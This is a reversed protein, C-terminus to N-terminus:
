SRLEESRVAGECGDRSGIGFSGWGSTAFPTSKARRARARFSRSCISNSVHQRRHCPAPVVELGQALFCRVARPMHTAETVLVVKSVGRESLARGCQRANEYTTTSRDEVIIDDAAVGTNVLVERMLRAVPPAEDDPDVVGGCVVIPCSTGDRYLELAFMTRFMTDPSLLARPHSDDRGLVGGGLVVIANADRPRSVLPPYQCALSRYALDGVWPTSLLLLTVFSLTLFWPRRRTDSRRRWSQIVAGALFLFALTYPQALHSFFTYM